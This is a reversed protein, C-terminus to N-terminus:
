RKGSGRQFSAKGIGCLFVFDYFGRAIGAVRGCSLLSNRIDMGLPSLACQSWRKHPTAGWNGNTGREACTKSNRPSTSHRVCIAM